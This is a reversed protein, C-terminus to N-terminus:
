ASKLDERATQHAGHQHEHTGQRPSATLRKIIWCRTMANLFPRTNIWLVRAIVKGPNRVCETDDGSLLVLGPNIEHAHRATLELQGAVRLRMGRRRAAADEATGGAAHHVSLRRSRGARVAGSRPEIVDWERMTQGEPSRGNSTDGGVARIAGRDRVARLRQHGRRPRGQAAPSRRTVKHDRDQLDPQRCGTADAVDKDCSRLRRERRLHFGIAVSEAQVTGRDPVRRLTRLNWTSRRGEGKRKTAARADCIRRHAERANDLM